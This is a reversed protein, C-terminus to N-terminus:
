LPTFTAHEVEQLHQEYQRTKEQEYRKYVSAVDIQNPALTSCGSM